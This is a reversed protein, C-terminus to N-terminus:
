DVPQMCVLDISGAGQSAIIDRPYALTETLVLSFLYSYPKVRSLTATLDCLTQLLQIEGGCLM